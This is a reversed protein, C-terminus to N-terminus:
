TQTGNQLLKIPSVGFHQTFCKTFYSHSSFGTQYAVENINSKKLLILERAKELRVIRIIESPSLGCLAKVKRQFHSRNTAMLDALKEVSFEEDELNTMVFNFLKQLYPDSNKFKQEVTQEPKEIQQKFETRRSKLVDIQSQITSLLEEPLFPKSIFSQAGAQIAEVRTSSSTKASLVIVPIHETSSNSKLRKLFALGDMEQMMLDTVIIDPINMELIKLGARGNEARLVHFNNNELYRTNFDMIEPDDEILLVQLRDSAYSIGKMSEIPVQSYARLILVVEFCAGKGEDSTVFIEGNMIEVLEKVLSLGIGIGKIHESSNAREFRGFIREKDEVNIGPGTDWVRIALRIGNEQEESSVSIGVQNGAPTYKVANDLLNGTIKQIADKDFIAYKTILNLEPIMVINKEFASKTYVTIIEQFFIELDGITEKLFYKEQDLRTIDLMQTILENLRLINREALEINQIDEPSRAKTKLLRVPAQIMSLPTRIEHVVNTFFRKKAENILIQSNNKIRYYMLGVVLVLIVLILLGSYLYIKKSQSKIEETKEEIIENQKEVIKNKFAETEMKYKFDLKRQYEMNKKIQLTDNWDFYKWLYDSCQQYDQLEYYVLAINHYVALRKPVNNTSEILKLAVLYHKLANRFQMKITYAGGLNNHMAIRESIPNSSIEGYAISKFYYKISSDIMATDFSNYWLRLYIAGRALYFHSKEIPSTIRQELHLATKLYPTLSDKQGDHAYCQLIDVLVHFMGITDKQIKLENLAEKLYGVALSFNQNEIYGRAIERRILSKLYLPTFTTSTKLAKFLENLGESIKEKLLFSRGSYYMGKIEFNLSDREKAMNELLRAYFLASDGNEKKLHHIVKNELVNLKDSQGTFTISCCICALTAALRKMKALNLHTTHYITMKFIFM